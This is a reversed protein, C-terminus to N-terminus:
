NPRIKTRKSRANCRSNFYKRAQISVRATSQVGCRIDGGYQTYHVRFTSVLRCQSGSRYAYRADRWRFFSKSKLLWYLLYAMYKGWIYWFLNRWSRNTPQLSTVDEWFRAKSVDPLTTAQHKRSSLYFTSSIFCRESHRNETNSTPWVAITKNKNSSSPIRYASM